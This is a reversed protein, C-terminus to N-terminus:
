ATVTDGAPEILRVPAVVRVFPITETLQVAVIVPETVLAPAIVILEAFNAPEEESHAPTVGVPKGQVPFTFVVVLRVNFLTATLVSKPAHPGLATAALM